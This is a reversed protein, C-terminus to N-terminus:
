GLVLSNNLNYRLGTIIKDSKTLRSRFNSDTKKAVQLTRKPKTDFMEFIGVPPAIKCMELNPM